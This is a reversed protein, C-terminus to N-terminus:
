RVRDMDIANKAVWVARDRSNCTASVWVESARGDHEVLGGDRSIRAVFRPGEQTIAIQYELYTQQDDM